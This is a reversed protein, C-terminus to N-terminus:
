VNELLEPFVKAQEIKLYQLEKIMNPLRLIAILKEEKLNCAKISIKLFYVGNLDLFRLNNKYSIGEYLRCNDDFYIKDENQMEQLFSISVSCNILKVLALNKFIRIFKVIEDSVHTDEFVLIECCSYLNDHITIPNNKDYAVTKRSIKLSKLKQFKCLDIYSPNYYGKYEINLHILSSFCDSRTNELVDATKQSDNLSFAKVNKLWKKSLFFEVNYDFIATCSTIYIDSLKWEFIKELILNIIPKEETLKLYKVIFWYPLIINLKDPNMSQIM